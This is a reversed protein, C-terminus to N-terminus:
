LYLQLERKCKANSCKIFAAGASVSPVDIISQCCPCIPNGNKDKQVLPMKAVAEEEKVQNTNRNYWFIGCFLM